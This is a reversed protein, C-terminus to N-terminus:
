MRDTIVKASGCSPCRELTAESFSRDYFSKECDGCVILYKVTEVMRNDVLRLHYGAEKHSTLWELTDATTAWDGGERCVVCKSPDHELAEDPTMDEPEIDIFSVKVQRGAVTTEIGDLKKLWEGDATEGQGTTDVIAMIRLRTM